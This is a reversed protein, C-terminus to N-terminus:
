RRVMQAHGRMSPRLIQYYSHHHSVHSSRQSRDPVLTVRGPCYSGYLQVRVAPGSRGACHQLGGVSPGGTRSRVHQAKPDPPPQPLAVCPKIAMISSSSLHWSGSLLVWVAPSPCCSECFLYIFQSGRSTPSGISQNATPCMEFSTTINNITAVQTTISTPSSGSSEPSPTCVGITGGEKGVRIRAPASIHSSAARGSTTGAPSWV